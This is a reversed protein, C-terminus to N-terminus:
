SKRLVMLMETSISNDKHMNYRQYTELPIKFDLSWGCHLAINILFRPTNITFIQGGLTTRNQGVILAFPAHRSMVRSIAYFADQMESLYRYLLIPGAKRRFGDYLSISKELKKCFNFEAKPLKMGNKSFCEAWFEKNGNNFERSGTLLAEYKRLEKPQCLDLWILSLRQTDIYPLATAYPPSTIAINYPGRLLWKKAEKKIDKINGEYAHAIKEKVGIVDQMTEIKNFFSHFSGNLSDLLNKEPFPSRRRRIRLDAPEQLSYDRLLNSALMLYIPSLNEAIAIITKRLFEICNYTEQPFWNLLYKERPSDTYTEKSKSYSSMKELIKTGAEKLVSIKHKLALQKANSIYVALPNLDCGVSPIDLHTCEALTTGSGCFPDLVKTKRSAGLINLIGRVIQPNFKGKYEHMGHVSYRTSQRKPPSKFGNKEFYHQYTFDIEGNKQFSEFYVLQKLREHDINGELTIFSKEQIINKPLLSNQLELLGLKREYPFYRHNHWNIQTKTQM